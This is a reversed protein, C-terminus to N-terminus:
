WLTAYYDDLTAYKAEFLRTLERIKAEIKAVLSKRGLIAKSTEEIKQLLLKHYNPNDTVYEWLEKGILTKNMWDSLYTELLGLSVTKSNRKGYAMGIFGKFGAKEVANIEESYHKIQAADLDNPGSKLEIYAKIGDLKEVVVDFKTNKGEKYDKGDYAYESSYLLLNQLLYGMSTVISRTIASYANYRVLDETSRFNLAKCLMPNCNLKEVNMEELMVMQKKLFYHTLIKIFNEQVSNVPAILHQIEQIAKVEKDTLPRFCPNGEVTKFGNLQTIAAEKFAQLTSFQTSIVNFKRKNSDTESGNLALICGKYILNEINAAM